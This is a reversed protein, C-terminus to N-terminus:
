GGWGAGRISWLGLVRVPTGSVTKGSQPEAAGFVQGDSAAMWGDPERLEGAEHLVRMVAPSVLFEDAVHGDCAEEALRLARLVDVQALSEGGFAAATTGIVTLGIQVTALFREPEERLWRVAGAGRRGEATLEALRTKRVSLVAIEAAAFVGNLLMLVLVILLEGIM